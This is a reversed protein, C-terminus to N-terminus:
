RIQLAEHPYALYYTFVFLKGQVSILLKIYFFFPLMYLWVKGLKGDVVVAM